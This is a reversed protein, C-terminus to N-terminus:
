TVNTQHETLMEASSFASFLMSSTTRSGSVVGSRIAFPAVTGPNSTATSGQGLAAGVVPPMEELTPPAIALSSFEALADAVRM